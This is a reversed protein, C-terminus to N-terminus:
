PAAACDRRFYLFLPAAGRRADPAFRILPACRSWRERETQREGIFVRVLISVAGQERPRHLLPWRRHV